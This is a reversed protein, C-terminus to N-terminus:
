IFLNWSCGGGVLLAYFKQFVDPGISFIGYMEEFMVVQYFTKLAQNPSPGQELSPSFEPVKLSM